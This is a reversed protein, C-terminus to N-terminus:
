LKFESDPDNEYRIEDVEEKKDRGKFLKDPFNLVMGSTKSINRYGHIIGPPIVILIPNKEGTIIDMFNGYTNSEKRIDWLKLQFNGPGTFAFVDTQYRHFHPGRSMGPNTFSVYSM